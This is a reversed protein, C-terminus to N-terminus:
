VELRGSEAALVLPRAWAVPEAVPARAFGLPQCHPQHPSAPPSHFYRAVGAGAESYEAAVVPHEWRRVVPAGPLPLAPAM